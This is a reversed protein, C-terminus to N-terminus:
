ARGPERAPAAVALRPRAPGARPPEGRLRSGRGEVREPRERDSGPSVGGALPPHRAAAGHGRRGRLPGRPSWRVGADGHAREDLRTARLPRPAHNSADTAEYVIM